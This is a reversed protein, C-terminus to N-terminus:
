VGVEFDLTKDPIERSPHLSPDLARVHTEDLELKSGYERETDSRPPWFILSKM